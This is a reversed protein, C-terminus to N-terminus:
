TLENYIENRIAALKNVSYNNMFVIHANSALRKRLGESEVLRVLGNAFDKPSDAIICDEENRFLLGEVGVSTTIFPVSMAAAELIKMRMGSGTLLPVIMISGCMVDSLNEVFGKLSFGYEENYRNSWGSGIINVCRGINEDILPMVKQAFWDLGEKNPIHAYSGLFVINGKWPKYEVPLTTIAAPSVKIQTAVGQNCLIEKDKETLTIVVDYKNLNSIEKKKVEEKKKADSSNLALSQLLRENRIFRIEHHVFVSKVRGKIHNIAPLCNYFEAQFIDANTEKITDNLFKNFDHTYYIGYPKLARDLLLSKSNPMFLIKFARIAKDKIFRWYLMQRWYPYCKFDVEHWLKNLKDMNTRSNAQSQPFIYTIHHLKRLSNIMNYVAQAGGSNLPYPLIDSLIVINM